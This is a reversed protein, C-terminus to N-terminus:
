NVDCVAIIFRYLQLISSYTADHWESQVFSISSGSLPLDVGSHTSDYVHANKGNRLLSKFMCKYKETSVSVPVFFSPEDSWFKSM